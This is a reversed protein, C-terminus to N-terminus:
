TTPSLSNSAFPTPSDASAADNSGFVVDGHCVDIIEVCAYAKPRSHPIPRLVKADVLKNLYQRASEDSFGCGRAVHSITLVPSDTFLMEILKHMKAGLGSHEIKYKDQVKKLMECRLIAHRSVEIVGQLNFDIWEDWEGNASVGYLRELYERRNKDYFESMYLWPMSMGLWSKACLSLLVRGVRGNGDEFPHIAEFQYHVVFCKVLPDIQYNSAMFEILNDLLPIIQTHPPPIFRRPRRGVAVLRSRFFGPKKDKGRVGTMLTKHLFKIFTQDFPKGDCIWNHGQRLAEYHNWVELRDNSAPTNQISIAEGGSQQVDFLLLEEPVTHTGEISSSRIAERQQLPRLLLGPNPLIGRIQELSGIAGRANAITPWLSSSISISSPLPHPVFAFNAGVETQIPELVGNKFETFSAIDM